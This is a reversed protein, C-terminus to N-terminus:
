SQGINSYICIILCSLAHDDVEHKLLAGRSRWFLDQLKVKLSGFDPLDANADASSLWQHVQFVLSHLLVIVVIRKLDCLANSWPSSTAGRMSTTPFRKLIHNFYISKELADCRPRIANVLAECFPTGNGDPVAGSLMPRVTLVDYRRGVRITHRQPDIPGEEDVSGVFM